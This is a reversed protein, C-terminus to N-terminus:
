SREIANSLCKRILCLYCIRVEACEFRSGKDCRGLVPFGDSIFLTGSAGGKGSLNGEGAGFEFSILRSSCEYVAVSFEESARVVM